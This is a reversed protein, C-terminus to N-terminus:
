YHHLRNGGWQRCGRTQRGMGPEMDCCLAMIWQRISFVARGFIHDVYIKRPGLGRIGPPLENDSVRDGKGAQVYARAVAWTRIAAPDVGMNQLKKEAGRCFSLGTERGDMDTCVFSLCLISVVCLLLGTIIFVKGKRRLITVGCAYLISYAAFGCASIVLAASLDIRLLPFPSWMRGFWYSANFLDSFVHLAILIAYVALALLDGRFDHGGGEKQTEQDVMESDVDIDNPLPLEASDEMCSTVIDTLDVGATEIRGTGDEPIIIRLDPMGKGSITWINESETVELTWRHEGNRRFQKLLEIPGSNKKGSGDQCVTFVCQGHDIDDAHDVTELVM